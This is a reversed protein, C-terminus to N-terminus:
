VKLYGPSSLWSLFVNQRNLWTLPSRLSDPKISSPFETEKSVWCYFMPKSCVSSLYELNLPRRTLLEGVQWSWKRLSRIKFYNLVQSLTPFITYSNKQAKWSQGFTLLKSGQNIMWRREKWTYARACVCVCVKRMTNSLFNCISHRKTELTKLTIEWFFLSM